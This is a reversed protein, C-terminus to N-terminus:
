NKNKWMTHIHTDRERVGGKEREAFLDYCEMPTKQERVSEGEEGKCTM